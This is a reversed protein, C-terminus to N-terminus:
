GIKEGTKELDIGLAKAVLQVAIHKGFIGGSNEIETAMLETLKEKTMTPKLTLIIDIIADTKTNQIDTDIKAQAPAPAPEVVVPYGYLVNKMTGGVNQRIVEIRVQKNVWNASDDGYAAALNKRTTKNMTWIKSRGDPITVSIQFVTRDLGTEEPERFEGENRLVVVDNMAVLAASLYEDYDSMKPM